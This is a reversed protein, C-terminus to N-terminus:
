IGKKLRTDKLKTSIWVYVSWSNQSRYWSGSFTTQDVKFSKHKQQLQCKYHKFPNLNKVTYSILSDVLRDPCCILLDPYSRFFEPQQVTNVTRRVIPSLWPTRSHLFMDEVALSWNVGVSPCFPFPQMCQFPSLKYFSKHKWEHQSRLLM